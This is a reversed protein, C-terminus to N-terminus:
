RQCSRSVPLVRLNFILLSRSRISSFVLPITTTSGWGSVNATMLSLRPGRRARCGGGGGGCPNHHAGGFVVVIKKEGRLFKLTM